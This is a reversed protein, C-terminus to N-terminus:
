DRFFSIEENFLWKANKVAQWFLLKEEQTLSQGFIAFSLSKDATRFIELRKEFLDFKLKRRATNLQVFAILVGLLAVIPTLLASSLKVLDSQQLDCHFFTSDM